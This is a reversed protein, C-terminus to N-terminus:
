KRVGKKKKWILYYCSLIALGFGLVMESFFLENPTAGFYSVLVFGSLSAGLLGISIGYIIWMLIGKNKKM